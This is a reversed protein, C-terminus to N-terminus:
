LSDVWEVYTYLDVSFNCPFYKPYIREQDFLFTVFPNTPFSINVMVIEGDENIGLAILKNLNTRENESLIGAETSEELKILKIMVFRGM